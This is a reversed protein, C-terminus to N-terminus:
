IRKKPFLLIAMSTLMIILIATLFFPRMLTVLDYSSALIAINDSALRLPNYRQLQPLIDATFLLVSFAATLLLPTFTGSSIVSFFLLAALLLVGFLWFCVLSIMLHSITEDPFLLSAYLYTTGAALFFAATWTTVSSLLKAWIISSRPLGKTLPLILTGHSIEASLTGSFIILLVILGMQGCNKFFQAYADLLIPEPITFQIGDMPLASFIVPLLKATLPSMMGFAFFVAFLILLRHTRYQELFEKKLFATM